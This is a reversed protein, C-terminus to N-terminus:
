IFDKLRRIAYKRDKDGLKAQTISDKLMSVVGDYHRKNIPYPYGDKGGVTFSYKAPDKWSAKEGYILESILALARITKPGVGKLSVLEEYNKPQIEYAKRLTKVSTKHLDRLYVPHEPKMNLISFPKEFELLTKQRAFCNDNVLDVSIKRIEKSKKATMDLVKKKQEDCCIANQPEEVFSEVKDNIWHYRRAYTNYNHKGQQVVAWDEKETVFFCHHYLQYDDQILSNDVKASMKSAYILEKTHKLQLEAIEDPTKRSIRGKGGCVAIGHEQMNVAIKLAGCTTTTVGSSHWDFGIVCSFSQFFYPNALRQLFNKQGYEDIIITSIAKSMKVMRKFLWPPAKGPHLPLNAIGSKRM